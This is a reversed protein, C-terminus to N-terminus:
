KAHPAEGTDTIIGSYDIDGHVHLGKADITLVEKGGILVRVTNTKEDTIIQPKTPTTQKGRESQSADSSKNIDGPGGAKAPTGMAEQSFAPVTTLLPLTLLLLTFISFIFYLRRM